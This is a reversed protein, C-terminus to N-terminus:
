DDMEVVLSQLSAQARYLTIHLPPIVRARDSKRNTYGVGLVARNLHSPIRTTAAELDNGSRGM